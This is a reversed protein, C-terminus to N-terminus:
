RTIIENFVSYTNIYTNASEGVMNNLGEKEKRM